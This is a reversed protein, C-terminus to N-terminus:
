AKTQHETKGHKCSTAPTYSGRDFLEFVLVVVIFYGLPLLLMRRIAVILLGNGGCATGVFGSDFNCYAHLFTLESSRQPENLWAARNDRIATTPLGCL